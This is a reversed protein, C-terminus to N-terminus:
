QLKDAQELQTSLVRQVVISKYTAVSDIVETSDKIDNCADHNTFLVFENEEDSARVYGGDDTAVYARKSPCDRAINGM